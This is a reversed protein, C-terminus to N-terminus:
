SKEKGNAKGNKRHKFDLLQKKAKELMFYHLWEFLKFLALIIFLCIIGALVQM